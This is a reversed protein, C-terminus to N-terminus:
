GPVDVEVWHRSAALVEAEPFSWVFREVADLEETVRTPTSGVSAFAVEARQWSDQHGTEAVSVAFRHRAGDLIPRLAARREKLSRSAPLRLDMVLVAAHAAM